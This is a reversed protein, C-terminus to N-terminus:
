DSIKPADLELFGFLEAIGEQWPQVLCAGLRYAREARCWVRVPFGTDKALSFLNRVDSEDVRESSKIEVLIPKEGPREAVLDVEMDDKTRLYSFKIDSGLYHNIATVQQVIFHEFAHGFHSTHPEIRLTL